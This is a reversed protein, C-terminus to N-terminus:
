ECPITDTLKVIQDTREVSGSLPPAFLYDLTWSGETESSFSRDLVGVPQSAVAAKSCVACYGSFQLMPIEPNTPAPEDRDQAFLWRPMGVADFLYHIQAQTASNMLISAGGLGDTGRFWLATLSKKSGDVDPCTLASLPMMRETGSEGYLTFSFMADNGALLTVSVQGVPAMQQQSGDNTVRMLDATWINGDVAPNGAIFWVPQGDEDYTYWILARSSGGFNYEYGQGLGPRSGPEWLGPHVPIPAGSFEVDARIDIAFPIGLQNSLVAYWRGPELMGGSVTLSPGNGNSGTESAVVPANGPATAFPPDGLSDDFDLRSLELKLNNSQTETAGRAMVTLSSAGPPVDIFVRDHVAAAALALGHMTGDMLPFTTSAAIGTRKFHVPIIGINNPRDRNTGIGTAGLWEEGPLANVNDWSLRVKFSDGKGIIGPGSAALSSNGSPGVV